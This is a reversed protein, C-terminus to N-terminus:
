ERGKQGRCPATKNRKARCFFISPAPFCRGYSRYLQRVRLAHRTSHCIKAPPHCTTRFLSLPKCRLHLHPSLRRGAACVIVAPICQPMTQGRQLLMRRISRSSRVARGSPPIGGGCLPGRLAQKTPSPPAASHTLGAEQPLAFSIFSAVVHHHTLAGKDPFFLSAWTEGLAGDHDDYHGYYFTRWNKLSWQRRLPIPKRWFLARRSSGGHGPRENKSGTEPRRKRWVTSHRCCGRKM